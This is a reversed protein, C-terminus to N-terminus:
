RSGAKNCFQFQLPDHQDNFICTVYALPRQELSRKIYHATVLGKYMIYMLFDTQQKKLHNRNSFINHPFFCFCRPSPTGRIVLSQVILKKSVFAQGFYVVAALTLQESITM